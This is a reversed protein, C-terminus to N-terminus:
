DLEDDDDIVRIRRRVVNRPSGQENSANMIHDTDAEKLFYGFQETASNDSQKSQALKSGQRREHITSDSSRKNMLSEYYSCTTSTMPFLADVAAVVNQYFTDVFADTIEKSLARVESLFEGNDRFVVDFHQEAEPLTSAYFFSLFTASYLYPRLHRSCAIRWLRKWSMFSLRCSLAHAKFSLGRKASYAVDNSLLEHFPLLLLEFTQSRILPTMLVESSRCVVQRVHTENDNALALEEDDNATQKRRRHRIREVNLNTGAFQELAEHLLVLISLLQICMDLLPRSQRKTIKLNKLFAVIPSHLEEKEFFIEVLQKAQFKLQPYVDSESIRSLEAFLELRPCENRSILVFLLSLYDTLTTLVIGQLEHNELDVSRSFTYSLFQLFRKDLIQTLHHIVSDLHFASSYIMRICSSLILPFRYIPLMKLYSCNNSLVSSYTNLLWKSIFALCSNFLEEVLLLTERQNCKTNRQHVFLLGDTLNSGYNVGARCSDSAYKMLSDCFSILTGKKHEEWHGYKREGDKRVELIPIESNHQSSWRMIRKSNQNSDGKRSVSIFKGNENEQYSKESDAASISLLGPGLCQVIASCPAAVVGIMLCLINNPINERADETAFFVLIAHYIKYLLLLSVIREQIADRHFNTLYLMAANKGSFTLRDFLSLIDAIISKRDASWGENLVRNLNDVLLKGLLWLTNLNELPCRSWSLTQPITNEPLPEIFSKALNESFSCLREKPRTSNVSTHPVEAVRQLIQVLVKQIEAEEILITYFLFPALVNSITQWQVFCDCLNELGESNSLVLSLETLADKLEGERICEKISDESCCKELRLLLNKIQSLLIAVAEALKDNQNLFDTSM